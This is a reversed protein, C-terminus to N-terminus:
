RTYHDFKVLTITFLAEVGEVVRADVVEHVEADINVDGGLDGGKGFGECEVM